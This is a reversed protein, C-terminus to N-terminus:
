IAIPHRVIRPRYVGPTNRRSTTSTPTELRRVWSAYDLVQAVLERPTRDRKLEIIVLGGDGDMALIDIRGGHDTKVEKGLLLADIGLMRLDDAVWNQVQNEQALATKQARVLQSGDIRYLETM